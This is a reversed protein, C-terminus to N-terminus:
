FLEVERKAFGGLLHFVVVFLIDVFGILCQFGFINTIVGVDALYICSAENRPMVFGTKSTKRVTITAQGVVFVLCSWDFM